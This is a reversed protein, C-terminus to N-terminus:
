WTAVWSARQRYGRSFRVVAQSDRCLFMHSSVPPHFLAPPARAREGVDFMAVMTECGDNPDVRGTLQSSSFSQHWVKKTLEPFDVAQKPAFGGSEESLDTELDLTFKIETVSNYGSFFYYSFGSDFMEDISKSPNFTGAVVFTSIGPAACVRASLQYHSEADERVSVEGNTNTNYCRLDVGGFKTAFWATLAHARELADGAGNNNYDDLDAPEFGPTDDDAYTGDAQLYSKGGAGADWLMCSGDRSSLGNCVTGDSNPNASYEHDNQAAEVAEMRADWQHCFFMAPYPFEERVAFTV